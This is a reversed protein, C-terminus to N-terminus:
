ASRTSIPLAAPCLQHVARRAVTDHRVSRRNGIYAEETDEYGVILNFPRYEHPFAKGDTELIRTDRERTFIRSARHLRFEGETRPM